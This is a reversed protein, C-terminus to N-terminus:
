VKNILPEISHVTIRGNVLPVGLYIVLFSGEVLRSAQVLGKKRAWIINKSPYLASKEKNCVQSSLNEYLGVSKMLM